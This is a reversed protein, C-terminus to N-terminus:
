ATLGLLGEVSLVEIPVASCLEGITRWGRAEADAKENELLRRNCRLTAKGGMFATARERDRPSMVWLEKRRTSGHCALKYRCRGIRDRRVSDGRGSFSSLMIEVIRRNTKVDFSGDGTGAGLSLSEIREGAPRARM